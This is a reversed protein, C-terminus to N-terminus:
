AVPEFLLDAGAMRVDFDDLGFGAVGDFDLAVTMVVRQPVRHTSPGCGQVIRREWRYPHLRTVRTLKAM